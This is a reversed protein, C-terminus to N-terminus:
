ICSALNRFTLITCDNTSNFIISICQVLILIPEGYKPLNIAFLEICEKCIVTILPYDLKKPGKIKGM